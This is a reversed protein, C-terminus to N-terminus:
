KWWVVFFASYVNQKNMWILPSKKVKFLEKIEKLAEHFDIWVTCNEPSTSWVNKKPAYFRAGTDELIAFEELGIYTGSHTTDNIDNSYVQAKFCIQQEIEEAELHYQKLVKRTAHHDLLPLQRSNIKELKEYFSDKRNPGILMKQQAGLLPDKIYIKYVLEVHIPKNCDKDYLIFDLEGLTVKNEIIQINSAILKYRRTHKIALEFFSEMRKGLVSNRPHILGDLDNVLEKTISVVPFEFVPIGKKCNTRIDPTNLFGSFQSLLDVPTNVLNM